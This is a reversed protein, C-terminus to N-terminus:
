SAPAEPQLLRRITEELVNLRVPKVLHESFGSERSRRIDDDMGYGSMAIGKIKWRAGILKMLEYGSSDPLGIDSMVLDFPEKGLMDLAEAANSARVVKYGSLHLFRGLARATDDHDEILLLRFSAAPAAPSADAGPPLALIPPAAPLEVTFVAGKGAGPSEAALIGHHLDILSKSIALGLGLGGFKRTGREGEQGFADFMHELAEPEFGVGTDKIQFRVRGNEPRYTTIAIAGGEPTFKVANKLLNWMVQQLRAPDAVARGAEPDLRVELRLKKELAQPRCISCVHRMAENIDVPELHLPIRGSAIRSVDLLDDILKSELEVNRRIMAIDRRISDSLMPDSEMGAVTILIPALPTRLEHSLMALFRDKALNAAEASEKADKLAMEIRKRDTIDRAEPLLHTIEGNSDRIPKLSFQVDIWRGDAGRHRTEMRVTAGKAARRVADRVSNQLEPSDGWWETTWYPRGIVEERKKGIFSLSTSNAEVLIGDVDLLGMFQVSSDLISRTKRQNERITEASRAADDRMRALEQQEPSAETLMSVVAAVGGRADFIPQAHVSVRRMSGDPCPVLLEAADIASKRAIARAAPDEGPSLPRHDPALFRVERLKKRGDGETNGWLEAAARNSLVIEGDANCLYVPVRLGDILSQEMGGPSDFVASIESEEGSKAMIEGTILM